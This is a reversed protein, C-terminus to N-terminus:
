GDCIDNAVNGMTNGGGLVLTSDGNRTPLVSLGSLRLLGTGNNLVAGTGDVVFKRTTSICNTSGVYELNGRTENGGLVIAYGVKM